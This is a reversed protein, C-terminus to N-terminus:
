LKASAFVEVPDGDQVHARDDEGEPDVHIHEGKLLPSFFRAEFFRHDVCQFRRDEDRGQEADKRAAASKHGSKQLCARPLDIGGRDPDHCCRQRGHDQEDDAVTNLRVPIQEDGAQFGDPEPRQKLCHQDGHRDEANVPKDASIRQIVLSDQDEHRDRRGVTEM